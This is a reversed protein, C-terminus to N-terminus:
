HSIMSNSDHSIPCVDLVGIGAERLLHACRGEGHTSHPAATQYDSMSYPMHFGIVAVPLGLDRLSLLANVMDTDRIADARPGFADEDAPFRVSEFGKERWLREAMAEAGHDARGSLLVPWTVPKKALWQAWIQNFAQRMAAEDTWDSSGTVLLAHSPVPQATRDAYKKLVDGHCPKPACFCALRKGRLEHVRSLLDPRSLLYEEYQAIVRARDADTHGKALPFPNGWISGRGIYIDFDDRYKNVVTTAM